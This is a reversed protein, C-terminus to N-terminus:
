EHFRNSVRSRERTGGASKPPWLTAWGSATSKSWLLLIKPFSLMHCNCQRRTLCLARSWWLKRSVLFTVLMSDFTATVTQGRFYQLSKEARPCIASAAISSNGGRQGRPPPPPHPVAHSCTAFHKGSSDLEHPLDPLPSVPLAHPVHRAQPM